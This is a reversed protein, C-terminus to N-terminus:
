GGSLNKMREMVFWLGLLIITIIMRIIWTTGFSTQLAEFASTELRITQVTLMLINSAFVMILGIGILSMFKSHYVSHFKVFETKILNKNQTGWVLLSAIVGGLVITQGVLGPFRSVAEPFFVIDSIDKEIGTPIDGLKVDGVGFVFADDVLHGDVKSLVKSTVTYVGDQLPPTTVRLSSDSEFYTTDKNDVREGNGDFVKLESFNIEVGESYHVIIESTGAPVSSFKSPVTEDTFPHGEAFPISFSSILVLLILFKM